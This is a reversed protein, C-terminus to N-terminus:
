VGIGSFGQRLYRLGGIFALALMALGTGVMIRFAWFVPKVPPHLPTGDAAIFDNLGPM